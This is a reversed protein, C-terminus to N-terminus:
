LVVNFTYNSWPVVLVVWPVRPIDQCVCGVKSRTPSERGRKEHLAHVLPRGACLEYRTDRSTFRKRSTLEVDLPKDLDLPTYEVFYSSKTIQRTYARQSADSTNKVKGM